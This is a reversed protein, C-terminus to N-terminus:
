IVTLVMWYGTFIRAKRVATNVLNDRYSSLIYDGRGTM